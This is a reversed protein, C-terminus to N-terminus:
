AKEAGAADICNYAPEPFENRAHLARVFEALPVATIMRQELAILGEGALQGLLADRDKM